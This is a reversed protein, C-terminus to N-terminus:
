RPNQIFIWQYQWGHPVLKQPNAPGELDPTEHWSAIKKKPNIHEDTNPWLRWAICQVRSPSPLTYKYCGLFVPNQQFCGNSCKYITRRPHEHLNSLIGPSNSTLVQAIAGSLGGACLRQMPTIHDLDTAVLRKIRDNFTLRIATEPAIKVVNTGNGKFFARVTGASLQVRMLIWTNTGAFPRNIHCIRSQNAINTTWTSQSIAHINRRRRM